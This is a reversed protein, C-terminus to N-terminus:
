SWSLSIAGQFDFIKDALEMSPSERFQKILNCLESSYYSMVLNCDFNYVMGKHYERVIYDYNINYLFCRRYKGSAEKSKMVRIKARQIDNLRKNAEPYGYKLIEYELRNLHAQKRKIVEKM